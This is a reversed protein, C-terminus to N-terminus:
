PGILRVFGEAWDRIEDRVHRFTEMVEAESGPAKAPDDFSRHTVAVRAPFYPCRERANDCVTVVHDFPVAPLEEVTKSTHGSIDVGAEKMVAVARPNLGHAEVGASHVEAAAGAFHRLWGEAMQSRCSNGTCLVLIRQADNTPM